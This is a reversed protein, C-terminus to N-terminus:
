IFTRDLWIPKIIYSVAGALILPGFVLTATQLGAARNLIGASVVAVFLILGFVVFWTDLTSRGTTLFTWTSLFTGLNPATAHSVGRMLAVVINPVVLIGVVLELAVWRRLLRWDQRVLPTATGLLVCGSMMVLGAGHTYVVACQSAIVWIAGFRGSTGDLWRTQTYWALQILALLMSYMRVDDSFDLAAPAIALLAGAALGVRAGHFESAMFCLMAVAVTSWVISNLMVWQDSHGFMMWLSLQLYYLPPHVDFRLTTLLATWPGDKALNVSWLEDGTLWRSNIGICRIAFAVAVICGANWGMWSGVPGRKPHDTLSRAM